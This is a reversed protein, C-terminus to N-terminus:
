ITCSGVGIQLVRQYVRQFTNEIQAPYTFKRSHTHAHIGYKRIAEPTSPIVVDTERLSRRRSSRSVTRRPFRPM